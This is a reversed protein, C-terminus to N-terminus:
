AASRSRPEALHAGPNNLLSAAELYADVILRAADRYAEQTEPGMRDWTMAGAWSMWRGSEANFLAEAAAEIRPDTM